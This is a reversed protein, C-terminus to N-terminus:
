ANCFVNSHAPVFIAVYDPIFIQQASLHFIFKFKIRPRLGHNEKIGPDRISNNHFSVKILVNAKDSLLSSQLYGIKM